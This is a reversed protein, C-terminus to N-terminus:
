EDPSVPTAIFSHFPRPPPDAALKCRGTVQGRNNIGIAFTFVADPCAILTSISLTATNLVFGGSVDSVGAAQGRDNLKSLATTTAGADDFTEYTSGSLLFAHENGDTSLFSGAIVGLDNIGDAFVNFPAAGPPDQLTTFHGQELVFSGGVSQDQLDYQGVMNGLNNIGLLASDGAGPLDVVTVLGDPTRKLGHFALANPGQPTQVSYFGVAVGVDNIGRLTTSAAGPIDVTTVHGSPTRIFAHLAGAADTFDGVTTGWDSIGAIRTATAGPVDVIQYSYQTPPKASTPQTVSTSPTKSSAHEIDSGCASILFLLSVAIPFPAGFSPRSSRRVAADLTM